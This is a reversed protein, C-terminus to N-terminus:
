TRKKKGKAVADKKGVVNNKNSAGVGRVVVQGFAGLQTMTPDWEPEPLDPEEISAPDLPPVLSQYFPRLIGIQFTIASPKLPIFPPPPPYELAVPEPRCTIHDAFIMKSM